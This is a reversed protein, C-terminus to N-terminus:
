KILPSNRHEKLHCAICLTKGNSIDNFEPSTVIDNIKDLSLDPNYKHIIRYLELIHHARLDNESGCRSCKYGSRELVACKWKLYASHAILKLRLSIYRDTNVFDPVQKLSGNQLYCEQSCYLDKYYGQRYKYARFSSGCGACIVESKAGYSRYCTPNCFVKKSRKRYWNVTVPNGCYLCSETRNDKRQYAKHCDKSCFRAIDKEYPKREFEKGCWECTIKIPM